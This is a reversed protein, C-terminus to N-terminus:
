QCIRKALPKVVYKVRGVYSYYPSFMLLARM